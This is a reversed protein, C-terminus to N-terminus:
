APGVVDPGPRREVDAAAGSTASVPKDVCGAPTHVCIEQGFGLAHGRRAHIPGVAEVLGLLGDVGALGVRALAGPQRRLARCGVRKEVAADRRAGVAAGRM